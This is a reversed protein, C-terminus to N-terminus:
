EVPVTIPEAPVKVFEFADILAASDFIGDSTDHVHFTLSFMEGPDIPWATQLWGTSSGFDAGDEDTGSCSFGTGSIDTGVDWAYGNPCSEYWCCDSLATNIAVYCYKEGVACGVQGPQCVFDWYNVPDRCETFNIITPVGSNTSGAELVIYFKDNYVQGIFEDYEQSFFVYKFRFGKADDPARLVLNWEVVDHITFSESSYPDTLSGLSGDCDLSHETGPVVGSAMLAYSDNLKPELDNGADGFFEVAEYTDELSCDILSSPTSYDNDLIMGGDPDCLDVACAMNEVSPGVAPCDSCDLEIVGADEPGTDTDGDGDSDSDSDTDTDTDADTDTDTDTDTSADPNENDNSAPVCGGLNAALSAVAACALLLAFSHDNKM